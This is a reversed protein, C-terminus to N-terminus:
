KLLNYLDNLRNNSFNLILDNKVILLSYILKM